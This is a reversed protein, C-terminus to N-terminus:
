SCLNLPLVVQYKQQLMRMDHLDKDSPQYGQAHCQVQAEPSLCRVELGGIRGVGTFASPPFPWTGGDQLPFHAYGRPDFRVVHVDVHLGEPSIFVSEEDACQRYSQATLHETLMGLDDESIIIDLDAHQRTQRGLLADVGWGGDIWMQMEATLQLFARVSAQDARKPDSYANM